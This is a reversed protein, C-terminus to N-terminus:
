DASKTDTMEHASCSSQGSSRRIPRAALRWRHPCWRHCQSSRCRPGWMGGTSPLPLRCTQHGAAPVRGTGPCGGSCGCGTGTQTAGCVRPGPGPRACRVSRAIGLPRYLGVLARAPHTPRRCNRSTRSRRRLRRRPGKRRAARVTAAGSVGSTARPACPRARTYRARASSAARAPRHPTSSASAQAPAPATSTM